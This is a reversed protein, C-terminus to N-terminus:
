KNIKNIRKYHKAARKIGLDMATKYLEEAKQTDAQTGIGKEYLQALDCIAEPYEDKMALDEMISFSKPIDKQFIEGRFLARALTFQAYKSETTSAALLLEAAEAKNSSTLKDIYPIIKEIEEESYEENSVKNLLVNVSSFKENSTVIPIYKERMADIKQYINLISNHYKPIEEIDIDIDNDSKTYVLEADSENKMAKDTTEDFFTDRNSQPIDVDEPLIEEAKINLLSDYNVTEITIKEDEPISDIFSEIDTIEEIYESNFREEEKKPYEAFLNLEEKTKEDEETRHAIGQIPAEIYETILKQTQGFKEARLGELIEQLKEDSEMISLKLTQLQITETDAISIALSIIKLRKKTQNM